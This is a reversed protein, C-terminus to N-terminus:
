SLHATGNISEPLNLRVTTESLYTVQPWYTDGGAAEVRIGGPRYGLSHEIDWVTSPTTQTHTYGGAGGEGSGAPGAPGAVPVVLVASVPPAPTIFQPNPPSTVVSTAPVSAIVTTSPTPATVITPSQPTITVTDTM